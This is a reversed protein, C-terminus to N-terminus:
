SSPKSARGMSGAIGVPLEAEYSKRTRARITNRKTFCCMIQGWSSIRCWLTTMDKSSPMKQCSGKISKWSKSAISTFIRMKAAKTGNARKIGSKRRCHDEAPPKPTNGKIKPKGQEGKLRNNEDRLRQIEAQAYRLDATLKEVLNLLRGVLERTNEDQISILDLNDFM